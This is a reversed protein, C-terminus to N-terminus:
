PAPPARVEPEPVGPGGQVAAAPRAIGRRPLDDLADPRGARAPATGGRVVRAAGRVRGRGPAAGGFRCAVPPSRRPLTVADTGSRHSYRSHSDMDTGPSSHM